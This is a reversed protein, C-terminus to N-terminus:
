KRAEYLPGLRARDEDGDDSEQELPDSGEALPRVWSDPDGLSLGALLAEGDNSPVVEALLRIVDRTQHQRELDRLRGVHRRLEGPGFREPQRVLQLGESQAPSVEEDHMVLKEHLKEGPRLGTFTIAIEGPVYGSLRVMDYALDLVRVPPGMDLLYLEGTEGIAGARLVLQVAEPITMFYRTMEPHTVTVPGGRAIQERFVPVVSGRSGLVNGFRVTVYTTEPYRSAAERVAQECVWKTAGMISTPYVAKDTSILVMREAGHRGCAEAVNCTGFVNNRVAEGVNGEMIPVHKHAAAHFVVQPRHHRLVGDIRNGDAVSGIVMRLRDELNPFARVLERYTRAISNEGHGLLVLTGPNLACIQRCLESGISGGAGTVMVRRGTLYRGIGVLDTEVPRRRLLDEMSVEQLTFLGKGELFSQLAPIVRVPIRNQRCTMICERVRPDDLNTTAVLAEDVVGKAILSPLLSLPGLVRTSRIYTGHSSSDDDLFGIVDYPEGDVDLLAMLLHVAPPGAGIILVRKAPVDERLFPIMHRGHLRGVNAVRLGIRLGGVLAISLVAFMVLFSLSYAPGPDAHQLVMLLLTGILCGIVVSRAVELSAFRWACRYLRLGVFVAVWLPLAMLFSARHHSYAAWVEGLNATDRHLM